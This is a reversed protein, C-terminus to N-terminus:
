RPQQRAGPEAGCRQIAESDAKMAIQDNALALNQNAITDQALAIPKNTKVIFTLLYKAFPTM